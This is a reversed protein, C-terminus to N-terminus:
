TNKGSKEEKKKKLLDAPKRAMQSFGGQFGQEWLELVSRRPTKVKLKNKRADRASRIKERIKKLRSLRPKRGGIADSFEKRNRRRLINGSKAILARVINKTKKVM